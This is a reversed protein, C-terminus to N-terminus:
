KVLRLLSRKKNKNIPTPNDSIEEDSSSSSSLSPRPIDMEENSEEDNNQILELTRGSKLHSTLHDLEIDSLTEEKQRLAELRMEEKEQEKIKKKQLDLKEKQKKYQAKRWEKAKKKIDLEKNDYNEYYTDDSM